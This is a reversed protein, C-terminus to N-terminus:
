RGLEAKLGDISAVPTPDVGRAAALYLSALDGMVALSYLRAVLGAGAPAFRTVRGRAREIRSAVIEMRKRVRPHVTDDALMAVEALELVPSPTEWGVIENHNQEPFLAVHALSKGNENMQGSWRVAAASYRYAPAYIVPLRAACAEAWGRLPDDPAADPGHKVIVEEGARAADKVDEAAFPLLGATGLARFVPISTWGLAARPPSGPPIRLCATGDHAAREALEGGSTICARPVGRRCAEEWVALTEETNGSYSVFFAFSSSGAAAPLEYGRVVEVPVPSCTEAFARVFDGGIASGGMGVVFVRGPRAGKMLDPGRGALEWAERLQNPFDLVRGMMDSPDNPRAKAGVAEPRRSM